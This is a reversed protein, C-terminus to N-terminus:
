GVQTTSSANMYMGAFFSIWWIFHWTSAAVNVLNMVFVSKSERRVHILKTQTFAATQASLLLTLLWMVNQGVIHKHVLMLKALLTHVRPKGAWLYKWTHCAQSAHLSASGDAGPLQLFMSVWYNHHDRVRSRSKSITRKDRHCANGNNHAWVAM